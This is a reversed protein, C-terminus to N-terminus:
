KENGSKQIRDILGSTSWGDELPALYIEGGYDDVIEHGVVGERSYDAGKVLIDPQLERLLNLPKDETFVIVADVCQLSALLHAREMQPIVPRGKGKLTRIIEDSNIAVVLFDGQVRANQLYRVHGYHLLDFCGNTFIVKGGKDRVAQVQKKLKSLSVIKRDEFSESTKLARELEDIYVASTGAKSVAIGSATNAIRAADFFTMDAACCLATVAAATDGAGSLDFVEQATAPIDIVEGGKELISMGESGRTLIVAELEIRKLLDKLSAHMEEATRIRHGMTVELERINPKLVAAGKYKSYDIGKPDVIVPISNERALMIAHRAVDPTVTGKNYDAILVADASSVRSSLIDKLAKRDTDDAPHERERDVRVIQHNQQAIIRTKVTTVRNDTEVCDATIGAEALTKKLSAGSEDRGLLGCITVSASLAQVNVAANGAGGPMCRERQYEIVPVPSEPSIRKIQGYIYQDLMIDGLVLVSINEFLAGIRKKGKHTDSM